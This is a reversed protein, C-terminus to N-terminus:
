DGGGGGGADGGSGWGDHESDSGGGGGLGLGRGRTRGGPVGRPLSIPEPDDSERMRAEEIGAPGIMAVRLVPSPEDAERVVVDIYAMEYPDIEEM